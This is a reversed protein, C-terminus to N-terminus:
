SVTRKRLSTKAKAARMHSAIIALIERFLHIVKDRFTFFDVFSQRNLNWESGM